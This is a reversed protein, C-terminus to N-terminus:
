GMRTVPGFFGSCWVPVVVMTSTQCVGFVTGYLRFSFFCKTHFLGNEVFHGMHGIQSMPGLFGSCGPLVVAVTDMHCFRMMTALLRYSFFCKSYKCLIPGQTWKCHHVLLEPGGSIAWGGLIMTALNRYSAGFM